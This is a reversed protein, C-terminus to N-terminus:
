VTRDICIGRSLRSATIILECMRTIWRLGKQSCSCHNHCYVSCTLTLYCGGRPTSYGGVHIVIYFVDTCVCVCVSVCMCSQSVISCLSLNPSAYMTGERQCSWKLITLQFVCVCVCACVCMCVCVCALIHVCALMRVCACVIVCVCVCVCVSSAICLVHVIWIPILGACMLCHM